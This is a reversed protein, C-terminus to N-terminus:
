RIQYQLIFVNKRINQERKLTHPFVAATLTLPLGMKRCVAASGGYAQSGPVFVLQAREGTRWETELYGDM